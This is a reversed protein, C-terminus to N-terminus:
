WPAVMGRSPRRSRKIRSRVSRLTKRAESAPKIRASGFFVIIDRIGYYKFRSLPELFEALIRIPRADKGNLFGLNKYAKLPRGKEPRGDRARAMPGM